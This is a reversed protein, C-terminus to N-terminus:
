LTKCRRKKPQEGCPTPKCRTANQAHHHFDRHAACFGPTKRGSHQPFAKNQLATRRVLRAFDFPNQVLQLVSEAPRLPMQACNDVLITRLQNLDGGPPKARLHASSKVPTKRMKTSSELPKM